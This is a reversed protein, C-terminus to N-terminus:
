WYFSIGQMQEFVLILVRLSDTKFKLHNSHLAFMENPFLEREYLYKELGLLGYSKKMNSYPKGILLALYKLINNITIDM